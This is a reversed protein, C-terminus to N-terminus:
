IIRVAGHCFEDFTRRFGGYLTGDSSAAIKYTATQHGELRSSFTSAYITHDLAILRWIPLADYYYIELSVTDRLERLRSVSLQIGRAFSERSEGVEAARRATAESDPDALLVRVTMCRDTRALSERLLSGNMGLLGLARVALVDLRSASTAQSRIDEAAASQDPFVQIIENELGFPAASDRPRSPALGLALRAHDPMALGDAIREFVDLATVARSGRLIESIRGQQIGVASALRHQSAGGYQQALRLIMTVDRARLAERAAESRWAWDPLCVPAFVSM